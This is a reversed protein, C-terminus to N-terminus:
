QPGLSQQVPPPLGFNPQLFRRLFGPALASLPNVSIQPDTASGTVRYNAAFLGQGEGGLLLSGIVPVNGLISNLAYAPVITGQLDLHDRNLDVVGNGTVGIAEGYALINDLTLRDQSLAFEGRLTSFPIGSGALMGSMGSFSPLALIRAIAPARALSYDGGEIHGTLIRKGAADGVRATVALRGGVINDSIDFLRLASGLDDSHLNLNSGGADKGSRLTLRRGNAFRADIEAAEWEAGNRLLHAAVDRVERQHGFIVRGLHADLQLPPDSPSSQQSINKGLDKIWRSLDLSQGRLDVHWGGQRRRTVFGALDDDGILLRQVEVRDLQGTGRALTLALRGELGPAKVEIDRVRTIQEQRLEAVLRATAPAGPPKKWGAEALSLGASRLDIAAEAEARAADFASYTLDIGIPGAIRDPFFDFGLRRRQEDNLALAVRYRARPGDKRKFLLSADLKVPVGDFRADGQLRAGAGGIELTFNGDTLNRDMAVDAIAAGTLSARVGYQVQDLKLDRLLPLKFHFNAETRGGVRAPDVGVEHAYRLPKADIVELVDQIPGAASLDVTLWEVPSGLDTIQLLGGTVQVSKVVGAKPSFVLRKDELTATGSVKRVPPLGQFYSITADHYRMSGHASVVEASWAAPDVELDLQVAAEDLVGDHVNALVWRRGNRSLAPPWLTEFKNVPVDVLTIGLKGALASAPPKEGAIVEPTIGDLSGKFTVGSGGGLDFELKALRLQRSEPAYVAHLSGQELRLAGEPLLESKLWGTGFRLDVRVGEGSLTALDLRTTLTGSIPFQAAELPALEPTLSALDAPELAGVDTALDLKRDSSSYRYNVHFESRRAGLSLGLALDGALGAPNRGATADVRDAQWRRGTQRDDFVLTADRIIVRRMQGLPEDPKTPGALQELMELPLGPAEIDQDGFRFRVAGGEDRVVRLLPRHIILRTPAVRGRLLSTVSFSAAVVPLSAVPEGDARSLRVGELWLELAHTAPDIGLRGGSIAINVGEVSRGLMEQVYPTLEDLDIPGQTLRWLGAAFVLILAAVVAGSWILLRRVGHRLRTGPKPSGLGALPFRRTSTSGGQGSM